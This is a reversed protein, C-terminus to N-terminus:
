GNTFPEVPPFFLRQGPELKRFNSLKNAAAVQIFYSSDGYIAFCMNPLTDGAKVTRIHTLDPSQKNEKKVVLEVEETNKFTANIIARLPEGNQNFVKYDVKMRTLVGKFLLTGWAIIIYNPRHTDGNYKYTLKQFNLIRDAVSEKEDSNLVGTGDLLIKLDLDSTNTKEYVLNPNSSGAKEEEKYQLEHNLSYNEPNLSTTFKGVENTFDPNEFATIILKELAM